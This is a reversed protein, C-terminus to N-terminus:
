PTGRGPGAEPRRPPRGQPLPRPWHPALTDLAGAPDHRLWRLCARLFDNIAFGRATLDTQAADYYDPEPRWSRTTMRHYDTM